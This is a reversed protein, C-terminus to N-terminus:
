VNGASAAGSDETSFELFRRECDGCHLTLVWTDACCSEAGESNFIIAGGCFFCEDQFSRLSKLMLVRQKQPVESEWDTVERLARDAAIDFVLASESAWHYVTHIIKYATYSRNLETVDDENVSYLTALDSETISETQVSEIQRRVREAFSDTFRLEREDDTPEVAGVEILYDSPAVATERNHQIRDLASMESVNTM